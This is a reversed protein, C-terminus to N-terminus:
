SINDLKRVLATTGNQAGTLVVEAGGQTKAILLMGRANDQEHIIYPLAFLAPGPPPPPPHGGTDWSGKSDTNCNGGVATDGCCVHGTTGM